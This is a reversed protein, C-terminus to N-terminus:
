AAGDIASLKLSFEAVKSSVTVFVDAFDSESSKALQANSAVLFAASILTNSKASCSAYQTTYM